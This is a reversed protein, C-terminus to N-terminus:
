RAPEFFADFSPIYEAATTIDPTWLCIPHSFCMQDGYIVWDMGAAEAQVASEICRDFPPYMAGYAGVRM